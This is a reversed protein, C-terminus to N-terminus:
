VIRKTPLTLHTYSVSKTIAQPRLGEPAHAAILRGAIIEASGYHDAMDFTTFGDRVYDALAAAAIDPDLTNGGREMDAVQWLGTLARSINLGDTIDIRDVSGM